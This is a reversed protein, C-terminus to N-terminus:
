DMGKRETLGGSGGEWGWGAREAREKLGRRSGEEGEDVLGYGGLDGAYGARPRGAGLSRVVDVAESLTWVM